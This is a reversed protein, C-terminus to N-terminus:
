NNANSDQWSEPFTQFFYRFWKFDEDTCITEYKYIRGLVIKKEKGALNPLSFSLFYNFIISLYFSKNINWLSKHWRHLQQFLCNARSYVCEFCGSWRNQAAPVLTRPVWCAPFFFSHSFSIYMLYSSHSEILNQVIWIHSLVLASEPPSYIGTCERSFKNIAHIFSYTRSLLHCCIVFFQCIMERVPLFFFSRQCSSQTSMQRFLLQETISM